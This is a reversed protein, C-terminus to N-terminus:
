RELGVDVVLQIEAVVLRAKIVRAPARLLTALEEVRRDIKRLAETLKLERATQPLPTKLAEPPVIVANCERNICDGDFMPEGCGPCHTAFMGVEGYENKHKNNCIAGHADNTYAGATLVAGCFCCRTDSGQDFTVETFRRRGAECCPGVNHVVPVM